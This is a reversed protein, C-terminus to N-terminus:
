PRCALRAARSPYRPSPRDVARPRKRVPPSIRELAGSQHPTLIDVLRVLLGKGCAQLALAVQRAANPAPSWVGGEGSRLPLTPLGQWWATPLGPWLAPPNRQVPGGSSNQGNRGHTPANIMKPVTRRPSKLWLTDLGASEHPTEPPFPILSALMCKSALTSVLPQPM